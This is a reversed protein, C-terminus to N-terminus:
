EANDCGETEEIPELEWSYHWLWKICELLEYKTVSMHTPMNMVLYIAHAKETDTCEFDHINKVIAIAKGINM